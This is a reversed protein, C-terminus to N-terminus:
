EPTGPRDSPPSAATRTRRQRPDGSLVAVGVPDLRLTVDEGPEPIEAGEAIAEVRNVRGEGADVLLRVHDHRHMREVVRGTTEAAGPCRGTRARVGVPRLGLRVPGDPQEPTPVTGLPGSATGDTVHADLFTTCGLFRAVRENRPARWLRRPEDTQLVRGEHLVAVRDALAFAEDLDHTVMVATPSDEASLLRALDVTLRDRLARDLGSLPEDLLLMRPEAALARALAVRQAQGGSLQRVRRRQYGALGVLDLLRDVEARRRKRGVGRMRLAFEVNGAVDRHGFLQGDQFVMGFGRRHVPVGSLDRGDFRVEGAALSELGAVTRLLTSKGCGSPGLVALVEGRPVELDVESLVTTSGYRVTVANMRLGDDTDSPETGRLAGARAVSM